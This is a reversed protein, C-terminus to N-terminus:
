GWICRLCARYFPIKDRHAFTLCSFHLIAGIKEKLPPDATILTDAVRTPDLRRGSSKRVSWTSVRVANADWFWSDPSAATRVHCPRHRLLLRVNRQLGSATM